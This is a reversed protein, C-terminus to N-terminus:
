GLTVRAQRGGRALRLGVAVVVIVMGAGGVGCLPVHRLFRGSAPTLRQFATLLCAHVAVIFLMRRQTFM